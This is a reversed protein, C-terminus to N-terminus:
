LGADTVHPPHGAAVTKEDTELECVGLRTGGRQELLDDSGVSRRSGRV